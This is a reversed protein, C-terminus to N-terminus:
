NRNGYVRAELEQVYRKRNDRYTKMNAAHCEKCTRQNKRRPNIKCIGCTKSRKRITGRPVIGRPVADTSMHEGNGRVYIERGEPEKAAM